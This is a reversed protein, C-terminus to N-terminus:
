RSARIWPRRGRSSCSWRAQRRPRTPPRREAAPVALAGLASSTSTRWGEADGPQHGAHATRAGRRLDRRDAVAVADTLHECNDLVLLLRQPALVAAITEVPPREAHLQTDLVRAVASPVLAGDALPALEVWWVGDPFEAIREDALQAAVVQAVRTKGIGGAGAVTVVAHQALLAKVAAVDTARGISRRRPARPLNTPVRVPAGAAAVHPEGAGARRRRRPAAASRELPLDFRYGRGPITAVSSQGLLKRLASVQVQLNNEEVVLDPWVLTLLENKSVVSAPARSWRWWCTSRGRAWAVPHGDALLRREGPQLEFRGFRFAATPTLDHASTSM